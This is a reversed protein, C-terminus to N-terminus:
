VSIRIPPATLRDGPSTCDSIWINSPWQSITHKSANRSPIFSDSCRISMPLRNWERPAAVRFARSGMVTCCQPEVLLGMVSSRLSRTSIYPSVLPQLNNPTSTTRTM